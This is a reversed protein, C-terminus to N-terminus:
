FASWIANRASLTFPSFPSIAALATLLDMALNKHALKVGALAMRVPSCVTISSAEDELQLAIQEQGLVHLPLANPDKGDARCPLASM